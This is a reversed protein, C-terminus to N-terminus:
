RIKLDDQAGGPAPEVPEVPEAPPAVPAGAEEARQKYKVFSPIAVAAAIGAPLLSGFVLTRDASLSLTRGTIKLEPPKVDKGTLGEFTDLLARKDRLVPKLEEPVDPLLPLDLSLVLFAVSRLLARGGLLAERGAELFFRTSEVATENTVALELRVQQDLDLLLRGLATIMPFAALEETDRARQRVWEPLVVSLRALFGGGAKGLLGAHRAVLAKDPQRATVAREFDAAPAFLLTGPGAFGALMPGLESVEGLERAEVGAVSRTPMAAGTRELLDPPFRGTLALSLGAVGEPAEQSLRLGLAAQDLDQLPDVGTTAKVTNVGEMLAARAARWQEALGPSRALVPSAELFDLLSLLSQGGAHLDLLLVVDTDPALRAVLPGFAKDLAAAAPPRAAQAAGGTLVLVALVALLLTSRM